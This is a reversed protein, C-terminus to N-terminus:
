GRASPYAQCVLLCVVRPILSSNRGLVTSQQKPAVFQSFSGLEEWELWSEWVDLLEMRTYSSWATIKGHNTWLTHRKTCPARFLNLKGILLAPSLPMQTSPKNALHNGTASILIPSLSLCSSFALILLNADTCTSHGNSAGQQQVERSASLIIWGLFPGCSSQPALADLLKLSIDKSASFIEEVGERLQM